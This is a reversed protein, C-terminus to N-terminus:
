ASVATLVYLIPEGISLLMTKIECQHGGDADQRLIEGMKEDLSNEEKYNQISTGAFIKLSLFHCCCCFIVLLAQGAM